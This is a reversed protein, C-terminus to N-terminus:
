PTMPRAVSICISVFILLLCHFTIWLVFIRAFYRFNTVSVRLLMYCLLLVILLINFVPYRQQYCEAQEKLEMITEVINLSARGCSTWSDPNTGDGCLLMEVNSATVPRNLKAQITIRQNNWHLCVFIMHEADDVLAKYHACKPSAIIGFWHLYENFAGHDNLEQAQYFTVPCGSPRVTWRVVSPFLCRTWGVVATEATWRVQWKSITAVRIEHMLAAPQLTADAAKLRRVSERELALLDGPPIGALILVAATLVTRYCQTVCVAALKLSRNMTSTNTAFTTARGAWVLAAYLLKSAVESSLLARKALFPGGVNHM